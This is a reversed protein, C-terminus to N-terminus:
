TRGAEGRLKSTRQPQCNPGPSTSQPESWERSPRTTRSLAAGMGTQSPEPWSPLFQVSTSIECHYFDCLTRSDMSFRKLGCLFFFHSIEGCCGQTHDMGASSGRWQWSKFIFIHHTHTGKTRKFDVVVVEM